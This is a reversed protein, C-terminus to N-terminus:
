DDAFLPGAAWNFQAPAARNVGGSVSAAAGAATNVFGGSISSSNGSATNLRGGSVSSEVGSATNQLGGSISSGEGSATNVEGGSISSFLGSATHARGGSVSAALGSATNEIGATVSAFEGSIENLSGVVLGGVSSFNNGAGVVVNHSGTRIDIGNLRSDNYGVILNGLGNPCNPLPNGQDDSCTTRGLGNVIRLNARTIVVEPYGEPGIESTVYQLKREVTRFRQLLGKLTEKEDDKPKGGRREDSAAGLTLPLSFVTLVALICALRRWWRLRRLATSSQQELTRVHHELTELRGILDDM